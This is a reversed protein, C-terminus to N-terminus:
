VENRFYEYYLWLVTYRDKLDKAYLVADNICDNGYKEIFTDFSLGVDNILNMMYDSSPAQLLVKAIQDFNDRVNFKEQKGYLAIRNQLSIVEPASTKYIRNIDDQWKADDAPLLKIKDPATAAQALIKERLSATVVAAYAVDIGHFFYDRNNLIGTIEFYHAFHHESGSAPRSNGVYSMAIGVNVLAEMLISVSKPDRQAVKNALPAVKEVEQAVFDYVFECLYEGLVLNALRWDNLCSYKGIIDGYGARIMDIPSQCLVAPEAIIAKPTRCNVTEKMGKLIMAAGVSAYGDMSPATAVIYYPLDHHFSVYKCLDNIVGSGVGVILDADPLLEAEIESIKTEDPVVVDTQPKLQLVKYSIKKFIARQDETHANLTNEDCVILIKNYGKCYEELRLVAGDAVDTIDVDCKHIRGCPCNTIQKM